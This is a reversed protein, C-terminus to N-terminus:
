GKLHTRLFRVQEAVIEQDEPAGVFPMHCMAEWVHLDASVGGRRMARHLLVTSSLLLDRTGTVLMTPPFGNSFDAFIPSLLPDRPDHGGAYLTFLEPSRERLLIDLFRNTEYSDGSETCDAAPSAVGCAAPLPLGLARAKLIAAVVLNGGASAGWFAINEPKYRQLLWRYAEIMDDLAAPFPHDPPMRYDVSYFRTEAASALQQAAYAAAMGGGLVFGGAHAYLVAQKDHRPSASAPTVEYLKAASLAHTVIEAPFAQGLMSMQATLVQDMMEIYRRWAQVDDVAPLPVVPLQMAMVAQAQPSVSNPIPVFRAPIEM